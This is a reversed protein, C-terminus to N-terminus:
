SLNVDTSVIAYGLYILPDLIEFQWAFFEAFNIYINNFVEIKILTVFNSLYVTTRPTYPLVCTNQLVGTPVGTAQLYQVHIDCM